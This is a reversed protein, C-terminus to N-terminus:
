EELTGFQILNYLSLEFHYGIKTDLLEAQRKKTNNRAARTASRAGCVFFTLDLTASRAGSSSKEGKFPPLSFLSNPYHSQRSPDIHNPSNCFSYLMTIQWYGNRCNGVERSEPLDIRGEM